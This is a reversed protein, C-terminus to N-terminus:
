LGLLRDVQLGLLGGNGGCHPLGRRPDVLELAAVLQEDAEAVLPLPGRSVLRLRAGPLPAEVQLAHRVLALGARGPGLRALPRRPLPTMGATISPRSGLGPLPSSAWSCSSGSASCCRSCRWTSSGDVVAGSWSSARFWPCSPGPAACPTFSENWG